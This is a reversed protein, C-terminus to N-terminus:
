ENVSSKVSSPVPRLAYVAGEKSTAVLEANARLWEALVDDSPSRNNVHAYYRAGRAAYEALRSSGREDGPLVWGHTRSLYFVRPDEFNNRTRWEASYGEPRSRVVILSGPEVNDAVMHGVVTEPEVEHFRANVVARAWLAVACVGALAVLERRSEVLSVARAVLWAGLVVTPLHYHRGFDGSTYRFAVLGLAAAGGFLALEEHGLKRRVVLFIAAPVALLGTGWGVSYRALDLWRRPEVIREFTPLKSDGGSLLGFTNGWALYLSRAHLLYAAVVLLVFIWGLWLLPNKLRDRRAMLCLLAQVIGLALTTPKVLGAITTAVAWVALSRPTPADLFRLFGVFGIVFALLALADPQISTGTAVVGHTGLVGALAVLAPLGGFRRELAHYLVLAAGAISILSLLQGPWVSEGVLRMALAILFPYLQLEAEVYGPGDGGWDIRPHLLDLSGSAFSRAIAQTDAQRWGQFDDTIAATRRVTLEVVCWVIVVLLAVVAAPKQRRVHGAPASM